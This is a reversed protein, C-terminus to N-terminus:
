NLYTDRLLDQVRTNYMEKAEDIKCLVKKDQEIAEILSNRTEENRKLAQELKVWLLGIHKKWDELDRIEPNDLKSCITDINPQLGAQPSPEHNPSNALLESLKRHEPWESSHSPRRKRKHDVKTNGPLSLSCQKHQLICEM